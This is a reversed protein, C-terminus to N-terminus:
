SKCAQAPIRQFHALLGMSSFIIRTKPGEGLRLGNIPRKPVLANLAQQADGPNGALNFELDVYNSHAFFDQLAHLARGLAALAGATNGAAAYTQINNYESIIYSRSNL